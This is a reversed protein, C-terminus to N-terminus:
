VGRPGMPFEVSPGLSQARVRWGCGYKACEDNTGHGWPSNWRLGWRNRECAGVASIDACGM